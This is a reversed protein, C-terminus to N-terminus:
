IFTVAIALIEIYTASSNLLFEMRCIISSGISLKRFGVSAIYTSM